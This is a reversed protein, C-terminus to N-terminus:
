IVEVDNRNRYASALLLILHVHNQRKGYNTFKKMTRQRFLLEFTVNRVIFNQTPWGLDLDRLAFSSM